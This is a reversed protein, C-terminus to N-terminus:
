EWEEFVVASGAGILSSSGCCLVLDLADDVLDRAIDAIGREFLLPRNPLNVITGSTSFGFSYLLLVFHNMVTNIAIAAAAAGMPEAM